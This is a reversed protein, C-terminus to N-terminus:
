DFKSKGRDAREKFCKLLEIKMMVEWGDKAHSANGGWGEKDITFLRKFVTQMYYRCMDGGLFNHKEVHPVYTIDPAYFDILMNKFSGMETRRDVVVKDHRM